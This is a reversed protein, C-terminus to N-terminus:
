PTPPGSEPQDRDAARAGLLASYLHVHRAECSDECGHTVGEHCGHRRHAPAPSQERLQSALYLVADSIDSPEALSLGPEPCADALLCCHKTCAFAWGLRWSLQWRGETEKLCSPCFRSGCTRGWPFARSLGSTGDKIRLGRESYHALTMSELVEVAVGTALGIGEAEEDTLQVIWSSPGKGRCPDLGVASLLDGFPSHTRHALGELWSDLAEGTVPGVRIPLTRVAGM